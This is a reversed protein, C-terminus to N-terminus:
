RAVERLEDSLSRDSLKPNAHIASLPRLALQQAAAGAESPEITDQQGVAVQIMHETNGTEKRSQPKPSGIVQHRDM